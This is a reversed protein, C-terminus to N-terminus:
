ERPKMPVEDKGMKLSGDEMMLTSESLWMAGRLTEDTVFHHLTRTVWM